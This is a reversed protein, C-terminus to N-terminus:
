CALGRMPNARKSGDSGHSQRSLLCDEKHHFFEREPIVREAGLPHWQRTAIVLDVVAVIHRQHTGVGGALFAREEQIGATGGDIPFIHRPPPWPSRPTERATVCCCDTVELDTWLVNACKTVMLSFDGRAGRQCLPSDSYGGKAFPTACLAPPNTARM